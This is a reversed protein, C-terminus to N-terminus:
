QGAVGAAPAKVRFVQYPAHAKISSPLLGIVQHLSSCTVYLWGDQGFSFGDPWRLRDSQVLTQLHGNQGMMVISSLEPASLYLNGEVDMTLGDSMPKRGFAEVRAELAAPSLSTDRLDAARIRYMQQASVAAFYLWEGKKDLAISDVGPRVDVLGFATMRRGQVVPTFKEAAVSVHGELLRRATRNQVDYVILAPTQGFFSAEAIYIFASDPSVQFDNLHSGLGALERPFEFEEVVAGSSLDFALLRGPRIGHGGNDLTWLRNQSDIRIGIVDVFFRPEDAGTQFALNPFPRMERQGSPGEVLEVIKWDPKAEPHLSVFVRNEGGVAINGPPTPLNAVVELASDPLLPLGGTPGPPFDAGGGYRLRLVVALVILLGIGALLVIRKM